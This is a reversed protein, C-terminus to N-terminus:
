LHNYMEFFDPSSCAHKGVEFTTEVDDLSCVKTADADSIIEPLRKRDPNFRHLPQDDRPFVRHGESPRRNQREIFLLRLLEGRVQDLLTLETMLLHEHDGLTLTDKPGGSRVLEDLHPHNDGVDFSKVFIAV